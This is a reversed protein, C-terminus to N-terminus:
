RCGHCSSCQRCVVTKGDKKFFESYYFLKTEKIVIPKEYRLRQWAAESDM